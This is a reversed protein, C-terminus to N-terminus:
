CVGRLSIRISLTRHDVDLMPEFRLGVAEAMREVVSLGLGVHNRDMRAADKRWFPRSLHPVDDPTLDVPANRVILVARGGGEDEVLIEVRGGERTHVLANSILNRAILEIVWEPARWAAHPDLTQKLDLNRRREGANRVIREVIPALAITEAGPAPKPGRSRTIMLLSEIMREMEEAIKGAERVAQRQDEEDPWRRAVETVTRLEAIPTRLEHATADAFLREWEMASRIREILRNLEAYVPRLEVPCGRPTAIREPMAADMHRLSAGLRDVPVLAYRIGAWLVVVITGVVALGTGILASILVALAREIPEISEAVTVIYRGPKESAHEHEGDADVRPVFIMSVARGDEDNPLGIAFGARAGPMDAEFLTLDALAHGGLSPSQIIVTGNMDEISFLTDKGDGAPNQEWELEARGHEFSVLMAISRARSELLRDQQGILSKRVYWYLGGGGLLLVVSTGAVLAMLLRSRLSNM